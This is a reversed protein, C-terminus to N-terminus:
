SDKRLTKGSPFWRPRYNAVVERLERLGPLHIEEPLDGTGTPDTDNARTKMSPEEPTPKFRRTKDELDRRENSTSAFPKLGTRSQSMSSRHNIRTHFSASKAMGSWTLSSSRPRILKAPRWESLKPSTVNRSAGEGCEKRSFREM